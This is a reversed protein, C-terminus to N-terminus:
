EDVIGIVTWRLPTKETNLLERAYRGDSSITVLQGIGAGLGDSAILPDGDPTKGDIRYPQVVLLKQGRLSAHKITSTATGVVLANQM